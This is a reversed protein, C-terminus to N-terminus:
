NIGSKIDKRGDIKIKAGYIICHLWCFCKEIIALVALKFIRTIIKDMNGLFNIVNFIRVFEYESLAGDLCHFLYHKIM